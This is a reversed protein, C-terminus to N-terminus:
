HITVKYTNEIELQTVREALMVYLLSLEKLLKEQEYIQQALLVSVPQPLTETLNLLCEQLLKLKLVKYLHSFDLLYLGQLTKLM